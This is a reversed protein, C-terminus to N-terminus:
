SADPKHALLQVLQEWRAKIDEPLAEFDIAFQVTRADMADFFGPELRLREELNRAAVDGFPQAPDLLQSLRGKSLGSEELFRARNGKYRTDLLHQLKQRRLTHMPADVM